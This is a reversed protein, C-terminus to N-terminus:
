HFDCRWVLLHQTGATPIELGVSDKNTDWPKNLPLTFTCDSTEQRDSPPAVQREPDQWTYQLNGSNSRVFGFHTHGATPLAPICSQDQLSIWGPREAEANNRWELASRSYSRSGVADTRIGGSWWVPWGFRNNSAACYRIDMRGSECFQSINSRSLAIKRAFRDPM